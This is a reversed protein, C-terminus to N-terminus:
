KGAPTPSPIPQQGGVNIGQNAGPDAKVGSAKEIAAIQQAKLAAPEASGQITKIKVDASASDFAKKADDESTTPPANGVNCGAM